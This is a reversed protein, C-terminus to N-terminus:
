ENFVLRGDGDFEPASLAVFSAYEGGMHTLATEWVHAEALESNHHQINAMRHAETEEEDDDDEEEEEDDDYEDDDDDEDGDEEEDDEELDILDVQSPDEDFADDGNEDMEVTTQFFEVEGNEGFHLEFAPARGHKDLEDLRSLVRMMDSEKLKVGTPRDWQKLLTRLNVQKNSESHHPKQQSSSSFSDNENANEDDDESDPSNNNNNASSRTSYRMFVGGLSGGSEEARLLDAEVGQAARRELEQSCFILEDTPSDSLFWVGADLEGQLQGPNWIASGYFFRFDSASCEGAQILEDAVKMDGGLYLGDRVRLSDVLLDPHSSRHLCQIQPRGSGTTVPGGFGLPLDGLVSKELFRPFLPATAHFADRMRMHPLLRNIVLGHTIVMGPLLSSSSDSSSSSSSSSASRRGKETGARHRPRGTGVDGATIKTTPWVRQASVELEDGGVDSTTPHDTILVVTRKFTGERLIPHHVLCIGPRIESSSATLASASAPDALHQSSGVLPALLSHAQAQRISAPPETPLPTQVSTAFSSSTSSLFLPAAAAAASSSAITSASTSASAKRALQEELLRASDELDSFFRLVEFGLDLHSNVDSQKPRKTLTNKSEQSEPLAGANRVYERLLATYSLSPVYLRALGPHLHRLTPPVRSPPVM